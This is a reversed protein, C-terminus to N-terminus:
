SNKDFMPATQIDSVLSDIAAKALRRQNAAKTYLEVETM